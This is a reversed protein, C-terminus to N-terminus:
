ETGTDEKKAEVAETHGCEKDVCRLEEKGKVSKYVMMSGCVPCKKEAPRDWSVFDCDPYRECGYFVRGGKKSHRIVVKAGCKPCPSDITRVIAKTNKCEPYNPCALFKGFRGMKYVMMAGCKDCPIDSIEDEIEIKEISEEAKILDKEFPTYFDVLLTEPKMSGEEIEDLKEEMHATFEVDVISAFNEKMLNTVIEGLETPYLVKKERRIYGRDIITSITPSYTSPRGIGQEELTKVLSAETFHPAPQTFHQEAKVDIMTLRDGVAMKPLITEKESVVDDRGEAYIKTFGDFLLRSGSSRFNYEGADIAVSMTEYRAEMMQSSIFRDYILKYLKFQERSLSEKIDEPAVEVYTPRIAEHADQSNKKGKYAIPKKPLYEEGYKEKILDRVQALADDSVRVSDTRIYTVLGVTGRKPLEVGEYLQQAIMMTKKTTMGLKRSAEQQLNSTTFPATPKRKKEGVKINTVIFTEKKIDDLIVNAEEENQLEVKKKNKGYFNAIFKKTSQKGQLESSITWFEQPIFANIEVERDVILRTAVSQVRGASLGKRVKAWLIPSIKYGVLRDLIRRAQQADVLDLDIARPEKIAAQIASPTIENFVIRCPEAEDIKLVNALHWSIAEGERDPDTALYVKSAGKAEKRINALVEGRGRMTIYKPKFDDEVDVGLQSKPLDRVHGNSAIVRYGKGLFKGITKSKAPSEVIVLKYKPKKTKPKAKAKTKTTESLRIEEEDKARPHDM